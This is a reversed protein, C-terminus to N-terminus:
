SHLVKMAKRNKRAKAVAQMNNDKKLFKLKYHLRTSLYIDAARKQSTMCPAEDDNSLTGVLAEMLQRKVGCVHKVSDFLSTFTQECSSILKCMFDSPAKLGGFNGRATNYAKQTCFFTM